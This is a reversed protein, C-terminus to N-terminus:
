LSEPLLNEEQIMRNMADIAFANLSKGYANACAEFKKKEEVSMRLKIEARTGQYKAVAARQSIKQEETLDKYKTREKKKEENEM